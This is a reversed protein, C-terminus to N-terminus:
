EPKKEARLHALFARGMLGLGGEEYPPVNSKSAEIVRANLRKIAKGWGNAILLDLAFCYAGLEGRRAALVAAKIATASGFLWADSEPPIRAAKRVLHDFHSDLTAATHPIQTGAATLLGEVDEPRIPGEALAVAAWYAATYPGAGALSFGWLAAITFRQRDHKFPVTSGEPRGRKQQRRRREVRSPSSKTM